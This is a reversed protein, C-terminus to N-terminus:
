DTYGIVSLLDPHHLVFGRNLLSVIIEEVTDIIWLRNYPGKPNKELKKNKKSYSDRADHLLIIGGGERIAKDIIKNAAMQRYVSTKVADYVRINTFVPFFGNNILIRERRSNLFGGHPRYLKPYLYFGLASSIAEQGRVLNYTFQDDKLHHAQRGSYGHNAIIHGEEYIRRTIEPYQEANEGLLFFIAKIQYKDLVDLLEPTTHEDPGDDFSFIVFNKSIGIDERTSNISRCSNVFLILIIVTLFFRNYM